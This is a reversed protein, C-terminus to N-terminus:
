ALFYLLLGMSFFSFLKSSPKAFNAASSVTCPELKGSSKFSFDHGDKQVVIVSQNSSRKAKIAIIIDLIALTDKGLCKVSMPSEPLAAEVFPESWPDFDATPITISTAQSTLEGLKTYVGIWASGGDREYGYVLSQLLSTLTYGKHLLTPIKIRCTAVGELREGSDLSVGLTSFIISLDHDAIVVETNDKSCDTGSITRKNHPDWIIHEANVYFFSPSILLVFLYVKLVSVGYKLRFRIFSSTM